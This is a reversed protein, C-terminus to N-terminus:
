AWGHDAPDIPRYTRTGKRLKSSIAARDPIRELLGLIVCRGRKGPFEPQSERDDDTGANQEGKRVSHNGYHSFLIWNAIELLHQLHLSPTCFHRRPVAISNDGRAVSQVGSYAYPV